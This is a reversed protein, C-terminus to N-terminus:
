KNLEYSQNSLDFVLYNKGGEQLITSSVNKVLTAMNGSEGVKCLMILEYFPM